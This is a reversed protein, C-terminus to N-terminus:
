RRVAPCALSLSPPAPCRPRADLDIAPYTDAVWRITTLVGPEKGPANPDIKKLLDLLQDTPPGAIPPYKLLEVITAIGDSRSKPPSLAVLKTTWRTVEPTSTSWALLRQLTQRTQAESWGKMIGDIAAAARVENAPVASVAIARLLLPASYDADSPSLRGLLARGTTFLAASQESAARRQAVSTATSDARLLASGLVNQLADGAQAPALQQAVAEAASSLIALAGTNTMTRMATLISTFVRSAEASALHRAIPESFLALAAPSNSEGMAKVLASAKERGREESVQNSVSLTGLAFGTAEDVDKLGMM